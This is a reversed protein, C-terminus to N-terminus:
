FIYQLEDHFLLSRGTFGVVPGPAADLLVFFGFSRSQFTQVLLPVRKGSALLCLSGDVFVLWLQLLRRIQLHKGLIVTLM